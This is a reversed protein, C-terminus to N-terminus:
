SRFQNKYLRTNINNEKLVKSVTRRAIGLEKSIQSQSFGNLYMPIIKSLTKEKNEENLNYLKDRYDPLIAKYTRNRTIGYVTQRSCKYKKMVDEVTLGNLMDEILKRVDDNSLVANPNTEGWQIQNDKKTKNSKEIAEPSITKGRHGEGIRKRHEESIIRGKQSLSMKKRIYDPFSKNTTGGILMNYGHARDNSNYKKMYFIELKDLEDINCEKIIEIEFSSEGYKNFSNQLYCNRHANRRLYSFHGVKRKRYNVTQGIYVKGNATNTIKYICSIKSVM